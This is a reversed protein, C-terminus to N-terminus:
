LLPLQAFIHHPWGHGLPLGERGEGSLSQGFMQMIIRGIALSVTGSLGGAEAAQELVLLEVQDAGEGGEKKLEALRYALGLTTPACGIAVIKM